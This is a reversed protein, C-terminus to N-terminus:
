WYKVRLMNQRKKSKSVAWYGLSLLGILTAVATYLGLKLHEIMLAQEKLQGNAVMLEKKLESAETIYHMEVESLKQQNQEVTIQNKFNTHLQHYQLAKQYDKQHAYLKSLELCVGALASPSHMAQYVQFANEYIPLAKQDQGEHQYFKAINTLISVALSKHGINQAFQLATKLQELAKTKQNIHYNVNAYGKYLMALSLTDANKIAIPLGEEFQDIAKNRRAVKDFTRGLNYAALALFYPNQEQKAISRAEVFHKLAKLYEGAEYMLNGLDTIVYFRSGLGKHHEHMNAAELLMNLATKQQDIEAYLKGLLRLIKVEEKLQNGVKTLGLARELYSIALNNSHQSLDLGLHWHYLGLVILSGIQGDTSGIKEANLLAQEALTLYASPVTTVDTPTYRSSLLRYAQQNFYQIGKHSNVEFVTRISDQNALLDTFFFLCIVITLLKM